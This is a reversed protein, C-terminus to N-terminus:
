KLVLILHYVLRKRQWCMKVIKQLDKRIGRAGYKEFLRDCGGVRGFKLVSAM